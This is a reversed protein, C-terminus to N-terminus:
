PNKFRKKDHCTLVAKANGLNSRMKQSTKSAPKSPSHPAEFFGLRFVSCCFGPDIKRGFAHGASLRARAFPSTRM